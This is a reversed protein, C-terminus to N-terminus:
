RQVDIAEAIEDGVDVAAGELREGPGARDTVGVTLRDRAEDGGVRLMPRVFDAREEAARIMELEGCRALAASRESQRAARTLDVAPSVCARLAMTGSEAGLGVAM